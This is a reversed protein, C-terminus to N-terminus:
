NPRMNAITAALQRMRMSTQTMLCERIMAKMKTVPAITKAEVDVVLVIEMKMRM